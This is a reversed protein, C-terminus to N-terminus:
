LRISGLLLPWSPEAPAAKLRLTETAQKLSRQALAKNISRHKNKAPAKIRQEKVQKDDSRLSTLVIDAVIGPLIGHATSKVSM